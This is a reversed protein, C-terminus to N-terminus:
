ETNFDIKESVAKKEIKEFIILDNNSENTKETLKSNSQEHYEEL